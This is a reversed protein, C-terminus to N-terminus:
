SSMLSKALIPIDFPPAPHSTLLASSSSRVKLQKLLKARSANLLLVTSLPPPGRVYGGQLQTTQNCRTATSTNTRNDAATPLQLHHITQRRNYTCRPHNTTDVEHAESMRHIYHLSDTLATENMTQTTIDSAATWQARPATRSSLM